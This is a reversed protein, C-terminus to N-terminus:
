VGGARGIRTQREGKGTYFGAVAGACARSRSFHTGTKRGIARGILIDIVNMVEPRAPRFHDHDIRKPAPKM